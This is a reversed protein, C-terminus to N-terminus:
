KDILVLSPKIDSRRQRSSSSINLPLGKKNAPQVARSEIQQSGKAPIASHPPPSAGGAFRLLGQAKKDDLVIGVEVTLEGGGQGVGTVHHVAGKVPLLPM